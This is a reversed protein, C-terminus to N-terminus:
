IGLAKRARLWHGIREDLHTYGGNIAKTLAGFADRDAFANLNRRQWYWGASRCAGAPTELYEPRDILPLGLAAGCAIYNSRGTLQFLGRGKYRMGDGQRNNGLDLRGEYAAGSALELVYRLSGSEHAAQAIFAAKRQPTSIEFERMADTLPKAYVAAREGCHPIAALLEAPTV